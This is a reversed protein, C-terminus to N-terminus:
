NQKYEQKCISKIKIQRPKSTAKALIKPIAKKKWNECNNQVSATKRKCIM